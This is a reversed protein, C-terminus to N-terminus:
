RDWFKGALYALTEIGMLIAQEDINFKSTHVNHIIGQKENRVGLRFFCGPIIEAYSAFDEATMRKIGEYIRGQGWVIESQQRCWVNFDVDNFLSPYGKQIAFEISSSYMKEFSQVQLMILQHAKERWAEDMARFTGMLKVETPIVNTSNGSNFACISLVSPSFPDKQRSVISQLNVVLQSAILIIDQTLHPTAAHGGKGKITIYIEDTSAMAQGQCFSIKGCDLFPDVHLGIIAQPIPSELVGEKIMLSAGGPFVEEGPQFIFKISGQWLDKSENLIKLAGLLCTMHVDHGCAHMVNDHKSKYSLNNAEQIPLADIDARLAIISKTPNNGSLIGVIGTKSMVQFPIGWQSLKSQIFLSTKKEEFSLEPYQHLHHHIAQFELFYANSKARMTALFDM